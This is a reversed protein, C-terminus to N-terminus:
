FSVKVGGYAAVPAGPSLSRPNTMNPVRANPVATVPSFTGYVAYQQNLANELMAFVQLNQTVQYSSNLDLLAYAGTNPTLNAEDGFLPQGSYVLVRGGVVWDPTVQWDVGLKGTHMPIGPLRSGPNVAEQGLANAAPNLPSDLLLPSRFTADTLSYGALFSVRGVLLNATIDVGQRQTSGINQFYDLGPLTSPAFIIDDQTETRYVGVDWNLRGGAFPTAQGRLGLEATRAVVQKLNPDGVFFNALSCPSAASACSLEAPTPARNSMAYSGYASVGGGLRYTLGVGPNFHSYTHNGNLATGNQDALDIQAVNMRGSLTLALRKTLEVVDNVFVGYYANTTNVRVPALSLDAQAISIGPGVFNVTVPNFGGALTNGDFTTIGGDFSAGVILNNAFGFVKRTDTAQLSAGYGNTDVGQLSMQSYPGAGAFAPIPAGNRGTLPTVGDQECLFGTSISCQQFNPTNGNIVRQSLNTYYATAQLSTKDSIDYALNGAVQLYQNYSDNPGSFVASRSAALLQVPVTGPQDLTNRAATVSLHAEAADGRWGLDAYIQRLRTQQQDRWGQEDMVNAAVYTSTGDKERGWEFNAGMQGFSGGYVSADGGHFTFGNKLKVSLSGGLANLGFVPNAGELDMRAIAIAPIVDWQVTDGFPQNFRVGNLYVALGQQAGDLPSATFGHYTLEPQQPNGGSNQLSVGPVNQNLAGMMDPIGTRVVEQGTVTSVAAPVQDRPIPASLLEPSATVDVEPLAVVPPGPPAATQAPAAVPLLWALLLGAPGVVAWTNRVRM